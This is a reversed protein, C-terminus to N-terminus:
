EQPTEAVALLIKGNRLPQRYKGWDGSITEPLAHTM